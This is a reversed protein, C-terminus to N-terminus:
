KWSPAEYNKFLAVKKIYLSKLAVQWKGKSGTSERSGVQQFKFDQVMRRVTAPQQPNLM